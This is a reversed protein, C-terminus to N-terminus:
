KSKKCSINKITRINGDNELVVQGAIGVRHGGAVTLFGQRLEDEYAYPSYHCIHNLLGELEARDPRYAEQWLKTLAGDKGVFFEKGGLFVSAPKDARLRIEQLAEKEAVCSWFPRKDAPFLQLLQKKM